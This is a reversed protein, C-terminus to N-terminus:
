GEALDSPHIAGSQLARDALAARKRNQPEDDVGFKAFLVRLNAKVAAVSIVLEEAIEGNTAPAAAFTQGAALPRCLAILVRRQTEGLRPTETSAAAATPDPLAGAAPDRFLIGTEGVLILDRDALRRRGRIREGNVYTGNRSLGDDIVVWAGELAVLEAHLRSVAEDGSLDVDLGPQRGITLRERDRTSVLHQVGDPSRHVLFPVCERELEIQRQLEAVSQDATPM